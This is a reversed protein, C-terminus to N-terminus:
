RQSRSAWYLCTYSRLRWFEIRTEKFWESRQRYNRSRSRCIRHIDSSRWTPSQLVTCSLIPAIRTSTIERLDSTIGEEGHHHIASATHPKAIMVLGLSWSWAGQFCQSRAKYKNRCKLLPMWGSWAKSRLVVPLMSRLLRRSNFKAPCQPTRIQPLLSRFPIIPWSIELM